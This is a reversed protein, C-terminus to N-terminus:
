TEDHVKMGEEVEVRDELPNKVFEEGWGRVWRMGVKASRLNCDNTCTQSADGRRRVANAM